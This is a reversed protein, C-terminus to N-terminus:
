LLGLVVLLDLGLITLVVRSSAAAGDRDGPTATTLFIAVATVLVCLSFVAGFLIRARGRWAPAVTALTPGGGPTASIEPTLSPLVTM